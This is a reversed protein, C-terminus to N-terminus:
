IDLTRVADRISSLCQEALRRLRETPRLLVISIECRPTLPVRDLEGLKLELEAAVSPLVAVGVGSRIMSKITTVSNAVAVVSPQLGQARFMSQVLAGYGVAPENIIMREAALAALGVPADAEALLRPSGSRHTPKPM